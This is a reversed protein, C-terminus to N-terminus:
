WTPIGPFPDVLFLSVVQYYMTTQFNSHTDYHDSSYCCLAFDLAIISQTNRYPSVLNFLDDTSGNLPGLIIACIFLIRRQLM